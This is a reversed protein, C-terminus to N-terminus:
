VGRGAIRGPRHAENHRVRRTRDVIEDATEDALFEGFQPPLLNDDIVARAAARGYAGVDNGFTRRVTVRQQKRCHCKGDIGRKIGFQREVRQAIKRWNGFDARRGHYQGRRRLQRDLRHLLQNRVGLRPGALERICRGAISARRM